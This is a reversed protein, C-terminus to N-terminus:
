SSSALTTETAVSSVLVTNTDSKTGMSSESAGLKSSPAMDGPPASHVSVKSTIEEPKGLMVQTFSMLIRSSLALTWFPVWLQATYIQVGAVVLFLANLGFILIFFSSLVFWRSISLMRALGGKRTTIRGGSNAKIAGVMSYFKRAELLFVIAVTCSVLTGIAGVALEFYPVAWMVMIGCVGDLILAFFAFNRFLKRKRVFFPRADTEAQLNARRELARRRDFWFSGALMTTALSCSVLQPAFFAIYDETLSSASCYICGFHQTLALIMCAVSEIVLLAVIVSTRGGKHHVVAKMLPTGRYLRKLRILTIILYFAATISTLLYGFPFLFRFLFSYWQSQQIRTLKGTTPTLEGLIVAEGFDCVDLKGPCTCHIYAFSLEKTKGFNVNYLQWDPIRTFTFYFLPKARENVFEALNRWEGDTQKKFLGCITSARHNYVANGEYYSLPDSDLACLRDETLKRLKTGNKITVNHIGYNKYMLECQVSVGQRGQAVVTLSAEAVSVVCLFAGFAILAYFLVPMTTMVLLYYKYYELTTWLLFVRQVKILGHQYRKKKVRLIFCRFNM